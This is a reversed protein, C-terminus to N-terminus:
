KKRGKKFNLYLKVLTESFRFLVMIVGSLFLMIIGTIIMENEGIYVRMFSNRVLWHAVVGFSISFYIVVASHILNLISKLKNRKKRKSIM